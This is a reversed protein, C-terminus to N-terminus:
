RLCKEELWRSIM